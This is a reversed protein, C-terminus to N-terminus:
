YGQEIIAEGNQYRSEYTMRWYYEAFDTAGKVSGNNFMRYLALYDRYRQALKEFLVRQNEYAMSM